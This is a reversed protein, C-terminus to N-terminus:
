GHMLIYVVAFGFLAGLAIRVGWVWYQRIMDLPTVETGFRSQVHNRARPRPTPARVVRGTGDLGLDSIGDDDAQDVGYQQPEERHERYAGGLRGHASTDFGELGRDPGWPSGTAQRISGDGRRPEGEPGIPTRRAPAHYHLAREIDRAVVALKDPISPAATADTMPEEDLLALRNNELRVFM